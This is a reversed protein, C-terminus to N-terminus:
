GTCFDTDFTQSLEPIQIIESDGVNKYQGSLKDQLYICQGAAPYNISLRQFTRREAGIKCFYLRIRKANGSEKWESNVIAVCFHL